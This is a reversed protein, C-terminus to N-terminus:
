FRSFEGPNAMLPRELVPKRRFRRMTEFGHDDEVVWRAVPEYGVSILWGTVERQAGRMSISRVDPETVTEDNFVIRCSIEMNDQTLWVEIPGSNTELTMPVLM